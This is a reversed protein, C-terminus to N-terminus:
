GNVMVLYGHKKMAFLKDLRDINPFGVSGKALKQELLEAAGGAFQGGRQLVPHLGKVDFVGPDAVHQLIDGDLLKAMKLHHSLEDRLVGALDILSRNVVRWDEFHFTAARM